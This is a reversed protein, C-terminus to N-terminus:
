ILSLRTQEIKKILKDIFETIAYADPSLQVKDKEALTTTTYKDAFEM